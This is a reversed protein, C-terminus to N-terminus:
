PRIEGGPNIVAEQAMHAAGLAAADAGLKGRVLSIGQYSRLHRRIQADLRNYFRDGCFVYRGTMIFHDIDFIYVLNAIHSGLADIYRDMGASIRSDNKEYVEFVNKAIRDNHRSCRDGDNGASSSIATPAAIMEGLMRIPKMGLLSDLDTRQPRGEEGADFVNMISWEGANGTQGTYLQGHILVGMGVGHRLAICLANPLNQLGLARIEALAMANVDRLLYTPASVLRSLINGIPVDTWDPIYLNAVSVREHADIIGADSIGVAIIHDSDVGFDKMVRRIGNEVRDLIERRSDNSIGREADVRNPAFFRSRVTTDLDLLVVEIGSVHIDVGLSYYRNAVVQVVGSRRHKGKQSTVRQTLMQKDILEDMMAYRTPKSVPIDLGAKSKQIPGHKRIENFLSALHPNKRMDKIFEDFRTM